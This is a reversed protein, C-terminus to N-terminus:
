DLFDDIADRIRDGVTKREHTYADGQVDAFRELLDRAEGSLKTPITVRVQAVARGRASSGTHPMGMGEVAVTDGFQTGSPIAFTIVEDPLIGDVEVTCGLAAQAMSVEVECYLDDGSRRFREHPAVQVNVILDGSPAGRYGAEGYGTVRLQRGSSIGAPIKFDRREHNPTRGQGGCM